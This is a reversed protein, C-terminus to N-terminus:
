SHESDIFGTVITVIASGANDGTLGIFSTGLCAGSNSHEISSLALKSARVFLCVASARVTSRARIM